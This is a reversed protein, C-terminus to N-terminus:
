IMSVTYTFQELEENKRELEKILAEREEQEKMRRTQDRYVAVIEGTPLKYVYNDRWGDLRDDKYFKLPFKEPEGTQWVRRFIELIGFERTGPFVETVNKGIIEERRIKEIREASKNFNRIIFDAGNDLAEYVAVANDTNDFITKYRFESEELAEEIRRREGIERELMQKTSNLERIDNTRRLEFRFFSIVFIASLLLYIVILLLPFFVGKIQITYYIGYVIICSVILWIFATLCYIAASKGSKHNQSETKAASM